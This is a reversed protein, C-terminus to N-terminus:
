HLQRNEKNPEALEAILAAISHVVFLEETYDEPTLAFSRISPGLLLPLIQHLFTDTKFEVGFSFILHADYGRHHAPFFHVCILQTNADDRFRMHNKTLLAIRLSPPLTSILASQLDRSDLKTPCAVVIRVDRRQQLELLTQTHIFTALRTMFVESLM